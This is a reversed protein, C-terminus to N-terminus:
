NDILALIKKIKNEEQKNKPKAGARLLAELILKRNQIFSSCNTHPKCGKNKYQSWDFDLIYSLPYVEETVFKYNTKSFFDFKKEQRIVPTYALSKNSDLMSQIHNSSLNHTLAGLFGESSIVAGGKIFAQLIEPNVDNESLMYNILAGHERTYDKNWDIDQTLLFNLQKIDNKCTYLLGSSEQRLVKAGHNKLYEALSYNKCLNAGLASKDDNWGYHPIYNVNAGKGIYYEVKKFDGNSAAAFFLTNIVKKSNPQTQFEKLSKMVEPNRDDIARLITLAHSHSTSYRIYYILDTIDYGNFIIKDGTILQFDGGVLTRTGNATIIDNTSYPSFRSNAFVPNYSLTLNLFGAIILINKIM